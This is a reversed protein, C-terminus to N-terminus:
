NRLNKILWKVKEETTSLKSPIKALIPYVEAKKYGLSSLADMLDSSDNIGTLDYDGDSIKSKLEIMIKAAMKKGIGSIATLLTSDGRSIAEKLKDPNTKALINAAMKPGVGSVTLLLEFIGLEEQTKFGYLESRDERVHHFIYYEADAKLKESNAKLYVKYGVGEKTLLIIYNSSVYKITGSLYAIM